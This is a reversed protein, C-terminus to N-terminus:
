LSKALEIAEQEVGKVTEGSGVTFAAETTIDDPSSISLMPPEKIVHFFTEGAVNSQKMVKIGGDGNYICEISDYRGPTDSPDLKM